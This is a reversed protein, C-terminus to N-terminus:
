CLAGLYHKMGPTCAPDIPYDYSHEILLFGGLIKYNHRVLRILLTTMAISSSYSAGLHGYYSLGHLLIGMNSGRMM